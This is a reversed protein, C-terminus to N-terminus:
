KKATYNLVKFHARRNKAWAEENHRPDLPLEEGYSVTTVTSAPVGLTSLFDASARARKAGLVMNYENTGREDCHGEVEVQWKNEKALTANNRLISKAPESLAYSDFAYHVDRLPSEETAVGINEQPTGSGAFSDLQKHPRCTCAAAFVCVAGLVSIRRVTM